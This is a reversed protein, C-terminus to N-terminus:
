DFLSYQGAVIRYVIIYFLPFNIVFLEDQATQTCYSKSQISLGCQCILLGQIQKIEAIWAKYSKQQQADLISSGDRNSAM